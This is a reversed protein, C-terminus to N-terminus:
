VITSPRIPQPELCSMNVLHSKNRRVVKCYVISITSNFYQIFNFAYKAQNQDRQAIYCALKRWWILRNLASLYRSISMSNTWKGGKLRNKNTFGAKTHCKAWFLVVVVKCSSCCICLPFFIELCNRKKPTWMASKFTYSFPLFRM